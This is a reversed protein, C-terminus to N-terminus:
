HCIFIRIITGPYKMIIAVQLLKSSLILMAVMYLKQKKLPPTNEDRGTNDHDDFEDDFEDGFENNHNHMQELTRKQAVASM